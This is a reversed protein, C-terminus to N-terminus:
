TRMAEFRWKMSEASFRREMLHNLTEIMGRLSHAVAKRVAQGIIPFLSDAIMRPDREVSIKLAEEIMPQLTRLMGRDAKARLSIAEAVIQSMDEARLEPDDLRARLRALERQEPGVILERLETLSRSNGNHEPTQPSIGTSIPTAM